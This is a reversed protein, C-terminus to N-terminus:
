TQICDMSRRSQVHVHLLKLCWYMAKLINIKKFFFLDGGGGGVKIITGLNM